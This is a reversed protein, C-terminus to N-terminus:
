KTEMEASVTLDSSKLVVFQREYDKFGKKRFVVKHSGAAVTLRSPTMGVLQNDLLIEAGEPVSSLVLSSFGQRSTAESIPPAVPAVAEPPPGQIVEPPNMAGEKRLGTAVENFLEFEFKGNSTCQRWEGTIGSDDTLTSAFGYIDPRLVVETSNQSLGRVQAFIKIRGDLWKRLFLRPTRALSKVSNSLKSFEPHRSFVIYTTEIRGLSKDKILFEFGHDSLIKVVLPWVRHQNAQFTSREFSRETDVPRAIKGKDQARVEDHLCCGALFIALLKGNSFGSM